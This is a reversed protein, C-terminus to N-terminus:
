SWWADARRIVRLWDNAARWAAARRPAKQREDRVVSLHCLLAGALANSAGAMWYAARVESTLKREVGFASLYTALLTDHFRRAEPEWFGLSQLWSGLDEFPSGIRSRGWDLLVPEEVRGRRRVLANGTHVDGHIPASGFPRDSRLQARFRPLGVAIRNLAPLSRALSSLDPDSRCRDLATTTVEALACLEGEYDWEPLEPPAQAAARHFRALRALLEGAVPLDRWPWAKIQRVAEICLLARDPATHEIGLLQPSVDAAHKAALREYAAAERAARGYLQKAVFRFMRSRNSRDRFRATVLLVGPSEMGGTLPKQEISIVRIPEPVLREAWARIPDSTAQTTRM